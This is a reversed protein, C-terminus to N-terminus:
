CFCSDFLRMVPETLRGKASTTIRQRPMNVETVSNLVRNLMLPLTKVIAVSPEVVFTQCPSLWLGPDWKQTTEICLIAFFVWHNKKLIISIIRLPVTMCIICYCIYSRKFVFLLCQLKWMWLQELKSTISGFTPRFLRM